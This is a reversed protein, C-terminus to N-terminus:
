KDLFRVSKSTTPETAAPELLVHFVGQVHGHVKDVPFLSVHVGQAQIELHTIPGEDQPTRKKTAGKARETRKATAIKRIDALKHNQRITIM